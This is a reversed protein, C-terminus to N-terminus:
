ANNLAKALLYFVVIIKSNISLVAKNSVAEGFENTIKAYYTGSNEISKAAKITFTADEETELVEHSEDIQIDLDDKLWKVLPKPKGAFKIAFKAPEGESITVNDLKNLIRPAELVDLQFTKEVAGYENTAKVTFVGINAQTVKPIVLVYKDKAVDKDIKAGDRATIEKSNFLWVVSPKPNSKIICEVKVERDKLIKQDSPEVEFVPGCSVNLSAKNSVTEGLQNTIKVLYFSGTDKSLQNLLKLTSLSDTTTVVAKESPLVEETENKFWTM